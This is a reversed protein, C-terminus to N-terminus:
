SINIRPRDKLIHKRRTIPPKKTKNVEQTLIINVYSM